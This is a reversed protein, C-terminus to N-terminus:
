SCRLRSLHQKVCISVAGLGTQLEFARVLKLIDVRGGLDPEAPLVFANNGRLHFSGKAPLSFLAM